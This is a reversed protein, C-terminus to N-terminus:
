VRAARACMHLTPRLTPRPAAFGRSPHPARARERHVCACGTAQGASLQWTPCEFRMEGGEMGNWGMRLATQDHALSRRESERASHPGHARSRVGPIACACRTLVRTSDNALSLTVLESSAHDVHRPPEDVHLHRLGEAHLARPQRTPSQGSVLCNPAELPPTTSQRAKTPTTRCRWARPRVHNLAPRAPSTEGQAHFAYGQPREHSDCPQKQLRDPQQLLLPGTAAPAIPHSAAEESVPSATLEPMGAAMPHTYLWDAPEQKCGGALLNLSKKEGPNLQRGPYSSIHATQEVQPALNCNGM